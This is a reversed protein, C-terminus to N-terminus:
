NRRVCVLLTIFFLMKLVDTVIDVSCHCFVSSCIIIAFSCLKHEESFRPIYSLLMDWPVYTQQFMPDLFAAGHGLFM